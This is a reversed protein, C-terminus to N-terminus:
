AIGRVRCAMKKEPDYDPKTQAIKDIRSMVEPTLKPVISVAKFNEELQELRTAGTIVTSVNPNAACWAIALQAVSCGLEQAIPKLQDTKEIQWERESFATDKLWKYKELSLRSGEPINKGSYKGSLIGWALPSWITTGLGFERYLPEYEIEVRHRHFINYQPQECLPRILGNRDAVRCAETIEQASWESTGWYYAYGRDIVHNMARVTEEIPTLPDPRHCFVVDVYELDMRKLSAEIGEVIHKRSCGKSNLTNQDGRAGGFLKTTLVVDERTWVGDKLGRHFAQGMMVEAKGSAYSEANDFLNCGLEYARKMIAYATDLGIQDDFSVWAGLSLKSVLLGSKGLTNYTMSGSSITQQM